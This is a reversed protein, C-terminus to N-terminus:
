HCSDKRCCSLLEERNGRSLEALGTLLLVVIDLFALLVAGDCYMNSSPEPVRYWGACTSCKDLRFGHRLHDINAQEQRSCNRSLRSMDETATVRGTHGPGFKHLKHSSVCHIVASWQPLVGM